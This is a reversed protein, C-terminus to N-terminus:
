MGDNFVEFLLKLYGTSTNLGLPNQYPRKSTLLVCQNHNSWHFIRPRGGHLERKWYRKWETLVQKKNKNTRSIIRNYQADTQTWRNGKHNSRLKKFSHSDEWPLLSPLMLDRSPYSSYSKCKIASKNPFRHFKRESHINVFPLAPSPYGCSPLRPSIPM